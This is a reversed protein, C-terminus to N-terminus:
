AVEVVVAVVASWGALVHLLRHGLLQAVHFGLPHALGLLVLILHDSAVLLSVALHAMGYWAM